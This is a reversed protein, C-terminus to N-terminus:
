VDCTVCVSVKEMDDFSHKEDCSERLLLCLSEVANDNERYQWLLRIIANISLKQDVRSLVPFSAPSPLKIQRETNSRLATPVLNGMSISKSKPRTLGRSTTVSM